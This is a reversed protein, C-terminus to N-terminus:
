NGFLVWVSLLTREQLELSCACAHYIKHFIITIKELKLFEFMWKKNSNSHHARKREIEYLEFQMFRDWAKAM